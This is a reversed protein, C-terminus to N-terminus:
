WDDRDLYEPDHPDNWTLMSRRSDLVEGITPGAPEERAQVAIWRAIDLCEATADASDHMGDARHAAVLYELKTELTLAQMYIRELKAAREYRTEDIM